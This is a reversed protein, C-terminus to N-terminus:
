GDRAEKRTPYRHEIMEGRDVHPREVDGPPDTEGDPSHVIVMIPERDDANWSEHWADDM